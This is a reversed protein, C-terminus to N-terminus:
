KTIYEILKAIKDDSWGVSRLYEFIKQIHQDGLSPMEFEMSRERGKQIKTEGQPYRSESM